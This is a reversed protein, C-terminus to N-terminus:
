GVKSKADEIVEAAQQKTVELIDHLNDAHEAIQAFTFIGFSNLNKSRGTGIHVLQTLDDPTPPEDPVGEPEKNLELPEPKPARKAAEEPNEHFPFILKKTKRLKQLRPQLLLHEPVDAVGGKLIVQRGVRIPRKWNNKVKM